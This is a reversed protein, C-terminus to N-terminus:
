KPMGATTETRAVLRKIRAVAMEGARKVDERHVPKRERFTDLALPAAALAVMSILGLLLGLVTAAGVSRPNAVPLIPRQVLTVLPTNRVEDMRAQEYAQRLTLHVQRTLSAALQLREYEFSLVPSSAFTRNAELFTQLADEAARLELDSERLRDEIFAREAAAQSQRISQNFEALLALMRETLALSLEPSSTKVGLSVVGTQRSVAVTIFDHLERVAEERSEAHTAEEIELYEILTLKRPDSSPRRNFFGPAAPLRYTSTAVDRLLSTSQFFDGYFDPSQSAGVSGLGIGLQAAIGSFREAGAAPDQPAIAATATFTPPLVLSTFIAVVVLLLPAYWLRRETLLRHVVFKASDDDSVIEDPLPSTTM